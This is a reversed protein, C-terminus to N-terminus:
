YLYILSGPRNYIIRVGLFYSVEGLDEIDLKKSLDSKLKNFALDPPRVILLDNIYIVIIIKTAVNYYTYNNAVLLEFGLKRLM